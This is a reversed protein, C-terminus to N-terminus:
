IKILNIEIFYDNVLSALKYHFILIPNKDEFLSMCIEHVSNSYLEYLSM